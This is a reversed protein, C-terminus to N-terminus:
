CRQRECQMAKGKRSPMGFRFSWKSTLIEGDEHKQNCEKQTAMMRHCIGQADIEKWKRGAVPSMGTGYALRIGGRLLRIRTIEKRFRGIVLAVLRRVYTIGFGALQTRRRSWLWDSVVKKKLDRRYNSVVRAGFYGSKVEGISKSCEKDASRRLM